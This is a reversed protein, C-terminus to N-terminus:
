EREPAIVNSQLKDILQVAIDTILDNAITDLACEGGGAYDACVKFPDGRALEALLVGHPM